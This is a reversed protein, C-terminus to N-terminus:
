SAVSDLHQIVSLAEDRAALVHERAVQAAADPDRSAIAAVIDRHERLARDRREQTSNTLKRYRTMHGDVQEHLRMAWTNDAIDGIMEHLRHGVEMADDALGVLLENRAVISTLATVEDDTAKRTADAAQVAELASRCTYLEDIDRVALKPVVVGGTPLQQLLDEALLLKIAERLPTRSVELGDALESEKLRQGPALELSLIRRKLEAYVVEGGSVRLVRERPM